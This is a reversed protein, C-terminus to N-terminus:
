DHERRGRAEHLADAIALDAAMERAFHGFRRRVLLAWKPRPEYWPGHAPSRSKCSAIRGIWGVAAMNSLAEAARDKPLGLTIAVGTVSFEDGLAIAANLLVSNPLGWFENDGLSM